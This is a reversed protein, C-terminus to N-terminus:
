NNEIVDDHLKNNVNVDLENELDEDEMDIFNIDDIDDLESNASEIKNIKKDECVFLIWSIDNREDDYLKYYFELLYNDESIFRRMHRSFSKLFWINDSDYSDNRNMTNYIAIQSAKLKFRNSDNCDIWENDEIKHGGIIGQYRVLEKKAMDILDNMNFIKDPPNYFLFEYTLVDKIMQTNSIIQKHYEQLLDTNIFIENSTSRIVDAINDNVKYLFRADFIENKKNVEKYLNNIEILDTLKENNSETNEM